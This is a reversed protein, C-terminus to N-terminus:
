DIVLTVTQYEEQCHPTPIYVKKENDNWSDYENVHYSLLIRPGHLHDPPNHQMPLAGPNLAFSVTDIVGDTFPGIKTLWPERGDHPFGANRYHLTDFESYASDVKLTLYYSVSPPFVYVEGLEKEDGGLSSVDLVSHNASTRVSFTSFSENHTVKFYGNEDTTFELSTSPKNLFGGGPLRIIGNKNAAPTDCGQM